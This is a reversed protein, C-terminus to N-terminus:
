AGKYRGYRERIDIQARRRARLEQETMLDIAPVTLGRVMGWKVHGDARLGKNIFVMITEVKEKMGYLVKYKSQEEDPEHTLESIKFIFYTRANPNRQKRISREGGPFSVSTPDGYQQGTAKARMRAYQIAKAETNFLRITLANTVPNVALTSVGWDGSGRVVGLGGLTDPTKQGWMNNSFFSV